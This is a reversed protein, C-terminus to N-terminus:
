LLKGQNTAVSMQSTAPVPPTIPTVFIIQSVSTSALTVDRATGCMEPWGSEDAFLFSATSFFNRPEM